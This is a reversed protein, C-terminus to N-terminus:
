FSQVTAARDVPKGESKTLLLSFAFREVPSLGKGSREFSHMYHRFARASSALRCYSPVTHVATFVLGAM